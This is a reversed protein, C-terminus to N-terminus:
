RLAAHGAAQHGGHDGGDGEDRDAGCQDGVRVKPSGVLALALFGGAHQRAGGELEAGAHDGAGADGVSCGLGAVEAELELDVVVSGGVLGHPAFVADDGQGGRELLAAGDGM